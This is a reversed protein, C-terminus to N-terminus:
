RLGLVELLATPDIPKAMCVEAGISVIKQCNEESPFGTMAIVRVQQTAENQKIRQCTDFGNLGPMMLDLLVIHPKFIHLKNGAEFGDYAVDVEINANAGRLLEVLYDSLDRNDDVILVRLDKTDSALSIGCEQAYKEIDDYSFRRHGGPTTVFKLKGGLAWHRVTVPSVHLLYAVQNPTLYKNNNNKESM